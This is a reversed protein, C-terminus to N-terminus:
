TLPKCYRKNVVKERMEIKSNFNRSINRIIDSYNDKFESEQYYFLKISGCNEHEFITNLLTRDSVGCSHGFIFVQYYDSNLFELTKKYNDTELYKISKINDSYENQNLKEIVKYNDDLEDGFGFIIPNNKKNDLDGHIHIVDINSKDEEKKIYLSEINTYNFSLFLINEPYLESTNEKSFLNYRIRNRIQHIRSKNFPNDKIENETLLEIYAKLAKESLDRINFDSYISSLINENKQISKVIERKLYKVLLNKVGEFDSNLKKIDNYKRNVDKKIIQLLLSYYENEIDVWNQLLKKETIIQLFQNKIGFYEHFERAPIWDHKVINKFVINELFDNYDTRLPYDYRFYISEDKFIHNNNPNFLEKIANLYYDDLFHRYGTNLDHALDFGNGILIIRNM